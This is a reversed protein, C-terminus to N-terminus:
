WDLNGSAPAYLLTSWPAFVLEVTQEIFNGIIEVRQSRRKWGWAYDSSGVAPADPLQFAIEAPLNLQATSYIMSSDALNFKGAAYGYTIDIKRFRRLVLYDNSFGSVDNRLHRVVAAFVTLYNGASVPPVFPAGSLTVQADAADKAAAIFTPQGDALLAPDDYLAAAAVVYPHAFIPLQDAETSIEYRDLDEQTPDNLPVKASIFHVAGQNTIRYAVRDQELLNGFSLVAAKSGMWTREIFRVGTESDFGPEESQLTVGQKGKIILGSAPM